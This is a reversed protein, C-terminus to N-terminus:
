PSSAFYCCFQKRSLSDKTSEACSADFVKGTTILLAKHPPDVAKNICAPVKDPHASLPSGYLPVRPTGKEGMQHSRAWRLATKPGVIQSRSIEGLARKPCPTSANPTCKLELERSFKAMWGAASRSLVEKRRTFPKRPPCLICYSTMQAEKRNPRVRCDRTKHLFPLYRKQHLGVGSRRQCWM